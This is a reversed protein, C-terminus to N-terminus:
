TAREPPTFMSHRWAGGDWYVGGKAGGTTPAARHDLQAVKAWLRAEGQFAAVASANLDEKAAERVEELRQELGKPIEECRESLRRLKEDYLSQRQESDTQREEMAVHLKRVAELQRECGEFRLMSSATQCKIADLYEATAATRHKACVQDIREAVEEALRKLQHAAQSEVDKLATDLSQLKPEAQQLRAVVDLVAEEIGSIHPSLRRDLVQQLTRTIGQLGDHAVRLQEHREQATRQAGSIKEIHAHEAQLTQEHRRVEQLCQEMSRSLRVQEDQMCALSERCESVQREHTGRLEQITCADCRRLENLEGSMQLALEKCASELRTELSELATREALAERQESTAAELKILRAEAVDLRDSLRSTAALVDAHAASTISDELAVELKALRAAEADLRESLQAAAARAEVRAASFLGEELAVHHEKFAKQLEIKAQKQLDAHSASLRGVIEQASELNMRQFAVHEELQSVKDWIRDCMANNLARLRMELRQMAELNEDRDLSGVMPVDTSPSTADISARTVMLSDGCQSTSDSALAPEVKSASSIRQLAEREFSVWDREDDM